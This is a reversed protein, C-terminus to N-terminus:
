GPNAPCIEDQQSDRSTSKSVQPRRSQDSGNSRVPKIAEEEETPPGEGDTTLQEDAALTPSGSMCVVCNRGSEKAQYLHLDARSILAAPSKHRSSAAFAVGISTTVQLTGDGVRFRRTALRRRIHEAREVARGISPCPLAVVFEEGGYRAVLDESRTVQRLVAAVERLVLDGADHGHEDNVRKFHDVDLMLVAM